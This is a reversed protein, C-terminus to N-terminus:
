YMVTAYEGVQRFGVRAYTARAAANFDNVYLSVAPWRQRVLHVVGAVASAALGHGRRGPDLWVGGIQCVYKTAAVVDTKFVVRGGEVIGYTLQKTMLRAVHAHYGAGPEGPVASVEEHYMAVSAEYYSQLFRTPVVQVRGDPVAFPGHDIVLVPQCERVTLPRSWTASDQHALRRWLGLVADRPGILSSCRRPGALAVAFADLAAPGAAVPMMTVGCSLLAELRGGVEYGWIEHGLTASDLGHETVASAVPLAAVPDRYLLDLVATYDPIGVPRVKGPAPHQHGPSSAIM